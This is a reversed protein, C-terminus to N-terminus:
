MPHQAKTQGQRVFGKLSQLSACVPLSPVHVQLPQCLRKMPNLLVQIFFVSLDILELALHDIAVADSPDADVIFYEQWLANIYHADLTKRVQPGALEQSDRVDQEDFFNVTTEYWTDVNGGHHGPDEESPLLSTPSFYIAQLLRSVVKM